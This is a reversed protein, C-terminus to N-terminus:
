FKYYRENLYSAVADTDGDSWSLTNAQQCHTVQAHLADFDQVRRNERVYVSSDHCSTCNADHMEQGTGANATFSLALMPLAILLTRLPFNRNM